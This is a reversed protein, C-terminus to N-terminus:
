PAGERDLRRALSERARSLHTKVTGTSVELTAAVEAVSLDLVYHLAVVEAQRRPLQRVLAWFEESSTTAEVVESRRSGIRVLARVEAQRRRFASTALNSCVRRVWAEPHEYLSVDDWRRYAVMMAEQALDEALSRPGVLARALAVLGTFQSSYFADFTQLPRITVLDADAARGEGVQPPSAPPPLAPETVQGGMGVVDQLRKGPHAPNVDHEKLGLPRM